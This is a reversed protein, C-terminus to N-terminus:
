IIGLKKYHRNISKDIRRRYLEDLYEYMGEVHLQMDRSIIKSGLIEDSYQVEGLNYYWLVATCLYGIAMKFDEFYFQCICNQILDVNESDPEIGLLMPMEFMNKKPEKESIRFSYNEKVQNGNTQRYIPHVAFSIDLNENMMESSSLLGAIFNIIMKNNLTPKIEGSVVKKVITMLMKVGDGRYNDFHIAFRVGSIINGYLEYTAPNSITINFRDNDILVALLNRSNESDLFAIYANWVDYPNQNGWKDFHHEIMGDCSAFPEFGNNNMLEVLPLIGVDIDEARFKM